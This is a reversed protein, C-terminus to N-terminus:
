GGGGLCEGAEVGQGFFAPSLRATRATLPVLAVAARLRTRRPTQACALGDLGVVAVPRCTSHWPEDDSEIYSQYADIVTADSIGRPQFASLGDKNAESYEQAIAGFPDGEGPLKPKPPPKEKKAKKAAKPEDEMRISVASSSRVSLPAVFASVAGCLAAVAVFRLM